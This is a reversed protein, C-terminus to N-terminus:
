REQKGIIYTVPKKKIGLLWIIQNRYYLINDSLSYGLLPLNKWLSIRKYHLFYSSYPHWSHKYWPKGPGTYHLICPNSITNCVEKEVAKDLITASYLFGTQFNYTLPLFKKEDQLVLNLTDQDHFLLKDAMTNVCELCREVVRHERWYRLNILLMGSNFYSKFKDYGLRKYKDLGVYDEDFVVGIAKGDIDENWLDALSDNIIMDGDLYLIKDIDAPLLHSALLRYYAALSVHDGLRIPCDKLADENVKIVNIEAGYKEALTQFDDLSKECLQGTLVYVRINVNKNNELLSTLMIGCYPVFKDDMACLINIMEIKKRESRAIKSFLDEWQNTINGIDFKNRCVDDGLLHNRVRALNESSNMLKKLEKAYQRISFPKVLIGTCRNEILDHVAAYSDYVIPVVGLQQAEIIVLAFGEHTSTVCLISAKKYYSIPNTTGTFFVSKLHWKSCLDEYFARERGDGLIYLKWGNTAGINKWVRLLRDVRKPSFDLRGVFLVIKEKKYQLEGREFSLPNSIAFLKDTNDSHILKSFVPKFRESLLVVANSKEYLYSYKQQVYKGRTYYQYLFKGIFYPSKLIFQFWGNKYRWWRWADTVSKIAATPDIHVVSIIPINGHGLLDFISQVESQNIFIDIKRKLVFDQVYKVNEKDLVDRSPLFSQCSEINDGEVPGGVSLMLVEHGREMLAHALTDTVRDIGGRTKSVHGLTVFCINM